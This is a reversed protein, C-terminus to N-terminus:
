EDTELNAPRLLREFRLVHLIYVKQGRIQYFIRCPPEVLQRNQSAELEPIQSGLRPFRALRAVHREVRRVLTRAAELNDIAIYEAIELLDRMAPATWIVEAM